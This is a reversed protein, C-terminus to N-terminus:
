GHSQSLALKGKHRRNNVIVILVGAALLAGFMTAITSVLPHARVMRVVYKPLPVQFAVEPVVDPQGIAIDKPHAALARTTTVPLEHAAVADLVTSFIEVSAEDARPVDTAGTPPHMLSFSHLFVVIFPLDARVLADIAARAEDVSQISDIDVKGIARYPPLFGGFKPTEVRRYVTVPIEVVDEILSPQNSPLGLGNLKANPYDLFLSSDLVIGHHALATITDRNASYAGARHAVVPKGTWQELLRVGDAVIREQDELSYSYMNPRTSDYRWQPHTHLAVDHGADELMTTIGRMADEGLTAYEYVNLFFVGPFGREELMHSM